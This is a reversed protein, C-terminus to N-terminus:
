IILNYLLQAGASNVTKPVVVTTNADTRRSVTDVSESHEKRQERTLGPLNGIHLQSCTNEKGRSSALNWGWKRGRGGDAWLGGARFPQLSSDYIKNYFM